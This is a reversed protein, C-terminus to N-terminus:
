GTMTDMGGPKTPEARGIPEAAGPEAAGAAPPGIWGSKGCSPGGCGYGVVTVSFTLGRGGEGARRGRRRRRGRGGRREARGGRLCSGRKRASRAGAGSRRRLVLREELAEGLEAVLRPLVAERAERVDARRVDAHVVSRELAALHLAVHHVVLLHAAGLDLRATATAGASRV